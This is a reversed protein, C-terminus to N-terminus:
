KIKGKRKVACLVDKEDVLFPSLEEETMFVQGEYVEVGAVGTNENRHQSGLKGTKQLEESTLVWYLLDDRCVGIWIFVDCCSPKLQQYHYKFASAKAEAHLYARSALSGGDKASNARCAKVEVRIGDLWLDFEGDFDPYISSINEKTAKVFEPFLELIHKEGWTEGFTRPAMDFLELNKNRKTYDNQLEIYEEYTITNTGLLYALIRGETSFPFVAKENKIVEITNKDGGSKNLLMELQSRLEKM